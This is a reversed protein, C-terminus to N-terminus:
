GGHCVLVVVSSNAVRGTVTVHSLSAALGHLDAREGAFTVCNDLTIPQGDKVFNACRDDVHKSLLVASEVARCSPM